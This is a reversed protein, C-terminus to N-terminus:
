RRDTGNGRRRHGTRGPWRKSPGAKTLWVDLDPGFLKIALQAKVGLLEDVRRRDAPLIFVAPRPPGVDAGGHGRAARRSGTRHDMGLGASASTIEINSVPEPDGGAPADSVVRAYTVRTDADPGARAKCGRWSTNVSTSPALTVRINITGKELEPVFETGLRPLLMAGAFLSVAFLRGALAGQAGLACTGIDGSLPHSYQVARHRLGSRFGYPALAPLAVLAVVALGAHGTRDLGGHASVAGEVGELTFLPANVVVIIIVAYFVPQGVQRGGSVCHFATDITNHISRTLSM